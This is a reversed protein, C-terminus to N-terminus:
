NPIQGQAKRIAARTGEMALTLIRVRQATSFVGGDYSKRPIEAADCLAHIENMEATALAWVREQEPTM